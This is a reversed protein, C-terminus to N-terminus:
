RAATFPWLLSACLIAGFLALVRASAGLLPNLAAGGLRRANAIGLPLLVLPALLAFRGTIVALV